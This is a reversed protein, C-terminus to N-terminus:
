KLNYKVEDIGIVGIIPIRNVVLEFSIVKRTEKELFWDGEINVIDFELNKVINILGNQLYEVVFKGGNVFDFDNFRLVFINKSKTKKLVIDDGAEVSEINYITTRFLENDRTYVRKCFGIMNGAEDITVIFHTSKDDLDNTSTVLTIERASITSILSMILVIFIVRHFSSVM